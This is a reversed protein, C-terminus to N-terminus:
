PNIVILRASRSRKGLGDVAVAKVVNRGPLLRIRSKWSELGRVPHSVIGTSVAVRAVSTDASSKGTIKLSFKNTTIRRPGKIKIVPRASVEPDFRLVRRMDQDSVWLSGDNDEFIGIFPSLFHKADVPASATTFKPQGVVTTAGSGNELTQPSAFRLARNNGTDLIWITNGKVSIGTPSNLKSASLGPNTSTFDPQGLVRTAASGNALTAASPFGCIRHNDRDVVWLTGASDTSLDIPASFSAAGSGSASSLFSAQGLIANCAAGSSLSSANDFRMVRHLATDAVWLRGAADLHLGVPNSM